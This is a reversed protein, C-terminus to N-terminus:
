EVEFLCKENIENNCWSAINLMFDMLSAKHVRNVNGFANTYRKDKSSVLLYDKTFDEMIKITM